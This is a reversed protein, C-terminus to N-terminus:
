CAAHLLFSTDCGRLEDSVRDGGSIVKAGKLFRQWYGDRRNM